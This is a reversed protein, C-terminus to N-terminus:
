FDWPDASYHKQKRQLGGELHLLESLFLKTIAGHGRIQRGPRHADRFPPIPKIKVLGLEMNVRLMGIELDCSFCKSRNPCGKHIRGERFRGICPSDNPIWEYFDPSQSFDRPAPPGEETEIIPDDNKGADCTGTSHYYHM